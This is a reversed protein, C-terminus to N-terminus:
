TLALCVVTSYQVLITEYWGAAQSFFLPVSFGPCQCIAAVEEAFPLKPGQIILQSSTFSPVDVTVCCVFFQLRHKTMQSISEHTYIRPTPRQQKTKLKQFRHLQVNYKTPWVHLHICSLHQLNIKWKSWNMLIMMSQLIANFKLTNKM